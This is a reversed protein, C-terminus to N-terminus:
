NNNTKHTRIFEFLAYCSENPLFLNCGEPNEIVDDYVDNEKLWHILKRCYNPTTEYGERVWQPVKLDEPNFRLGSSCVVIAILVLLLFNKM